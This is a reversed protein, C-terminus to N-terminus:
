YLRFFTSSLVERICLISPTPSKFSQFFFFMSSWGGALGQVTFHIPFETTGSWPACPFSWFTQPWFWPIQHHCRAGVCQSSSLLPQRQACIWLLFWFLSHTSLKNTELRPSLSCSSTGKKKKAEKSKQVYQWGLWNVELCYFYHTCKKVGNWKGTGQKERHFIGMSPEM